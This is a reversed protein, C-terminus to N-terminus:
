LLDDISAPKPAEEVADFDDTAAVSSDLREGDALWQVNNLAFSVGKNGARDYAFATLSARVKCGPYVLEEDTLQAPKGTTPDNWPLVIGPKKKSRAGVFVTGEPYGKSEGDTRFPSRIQGTKAMEIYKDGWKAKGADNAVKKLASIDTDADFLFSASYKPESNEDIASPEFLHPFSLTAEPTVVRTSTETM